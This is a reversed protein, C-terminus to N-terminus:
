KPDPGLASFFPLAAWLQYALRRFFPLLVARFLFPFRRGRRADGSPSRGFFPSFFSTPSISRLCWSDLPFFFFLAICSRGTQGRGATLLPFLFFIPWSSCRLFFFPFLTIKVDKSQRRVLPRFFDTSRVGFFFLSFFFIKPLVSIRRWRFFFDCLPRRRGLFYFTFFPLLGATLFSRGGDVWCRRSDAFLFPYTQLAERFSSRALFFPFSFTPFLTAPHSGAAGDM